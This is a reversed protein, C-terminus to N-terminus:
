QGFLTVGLKSEIDGYFLVNSNSNNPNSEFTNSMMIVNGSDDITGQGMVFQNPIPKNYNDRANTVYYNGIKLPVNMVQNNVAYNRLIALENAYETHALASASNLFSQSNGTKASTKMDLKLGSGIVQKLQPSSKNTSVLHEGVQKGESDRLIVKYTIESSVPNKVLSIESKEKIAGKELIIKNINYGDSTTANLTNNFMGDLVENNVKNINSNKNLDILTEVENLVAGSSAIERAKVDYKNSKVKSLAAMHRNKLVGEASTPATINRGVNTVSIPKEEKMYKIFEDKSYPKAKPDLETLERKYDEYMQNIGFNDTTTMTKHVLDLQSKNRSLESKLGEIKQNIEEKQMATLSKSNLQSQLTSIQDTLSTINTKTSNYDIKTPVTAGTLSIISSEEDLMKQQRRGWDPNERLSQSTQKFIRENIVSEVLNDFTSNRKYGMKEDWDGLDSLYGSYSSFITPIVRKILPELKERTLYKGDNDVYFQGTISTNGYGDAVVNDVANEFDTRMKTSTERADYGARQNYPRLAGTAPDYTAYMADAKLGLEPAGKEMLSTLSKMVEKHPDVAATMTQIRKDQAINRIVNAFERSATSFDGTQRIYDTIQYLQDNYENQVHKKGPMDGPNVEFNLLKNAADGQALASDFGKQKQEAVGQLFEWPMDVQTSVYERLRPKYFRM